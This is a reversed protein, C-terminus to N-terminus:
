LVVKHLLTYSRGAAAPDIFTQNPREKGKKLRRRVAAADQARIDKIFAITSTSSMKKTLRKVSKSALM